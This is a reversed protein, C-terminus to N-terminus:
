GKLLKKIDKATLWVGNINSSYRFGNRVKKFDKYKEKNNWSKFPTLIVYMDKSEVTNHSEDEPILVEHLKEGPRIGIIKFRCQPAIVRALDVIKMSPVKSVFIEGGQMIKLCRLVFIVGQELTIWFRTMREDTVTLFGKSKQERFLPVISGRSNLVNGYRVVSFRTKIDGSYSNAAVFLKDACLKSAGYLNIPNVAKDSSLALIRKVKNDLAANIINEAGLVNTKIAEFPNYELPSVQKLAAAHIVIDVGHFARHLRQVDRVDGLFYRLNEDKFKKKMLFQKYEDRSFVILKKPRHRKLVIEVFKQGFSGTGGTILIVKDKLNM